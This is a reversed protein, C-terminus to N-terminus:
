VTGRCSTLEDKGERRTGGEKTPARVCANDPGERTRRRRNCAQRPSGMGVPGGTWPDSLDRSGDINGIIM